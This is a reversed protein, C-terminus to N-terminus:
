NGNQFWIVKQSGSDRLITNTYKDKLAEFIPVHLDNHTEVIINKINNLKVFEADLVFHESGEIDVKLLDIPKNVLQLKELLLIFTIGEISEYIYHMNPIKTDSKCSGTANLPLFAFEVPGNKNSLAYNYIEVEKWSENLKQTEFLCECLLKSGEVAYVKNGNKNFYDISVGINAGLDIITLNNEKLIPIDYSPEEFIERLLGAWMNHRGGWSAHLMEEKPCFFNSLTHPNQLIECDLM